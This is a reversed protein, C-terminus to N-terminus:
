EDKKSFQSVTEDFKAKGELLTQADVKSGATKVAGIVASTIVM